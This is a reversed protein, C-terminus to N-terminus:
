LLSDIRNGKIASGRDCALGFGYGEVYMLTNRVPIVGATWLLAVSSPTGVKPVPRVPQARDSPKRVQIM